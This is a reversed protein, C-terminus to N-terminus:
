RTNLTFFSMWASSNKLPGLENDSVGVVVAYSRQYRAIEQGSPLRASVPQIGREQAHLPFLWCLCFLLATKSM